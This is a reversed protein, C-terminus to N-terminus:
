YQVWEAQEWLQACLDQGIAEGDVLALALTQSRSLDRYYWRDVQFSVVGSGDPSSLTMTLERFEGNECDTKGSDADGLFPLAMRIFNTPPRRFELEDLQTMIADFDEDGASLTLEKIKNGSIINQLEIWFTISEPEAVGTIERISLPRKYILTAVLIVALVAMVAAYYLKKRKM